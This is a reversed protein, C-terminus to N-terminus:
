RCSWQSILPPNQCQGYKIDSCSFTCHITSHTYPPKSATRLADIEQSLQNEAQQWFQKPGTTRYSCGGTYDATCTGVGSVVSCSTVVQSSIFDKFFQLYTQGLSISKPADNICSNITMRCSQTAVLNMNCNSPAKVPKVPNSQALAWHFIIGFALILSLTVIKRISKRMIM